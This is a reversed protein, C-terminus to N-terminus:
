KKNIETILTRVEELILSLELKIVQDVGDGNVFENLREIRRNLVTLDLKM